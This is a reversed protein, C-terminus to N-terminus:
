QSSKVTGTRGRSPLIPYVSVSGSISTTNTSFPLESITAAVTNYKLNQFDPSSAFAMFRAIEPELMKMLGLGDIGVDFKDAEAFPRNKTLHFVQKNLKFWIGALPPKDRDITTVFGPKFDAATADTKKPSAKSFFDILSRAHVCFSEILAFRQVEQDSTEPDVPPRALAELMAYTRRLMDIEYPLHEKFIQTLVKDAM